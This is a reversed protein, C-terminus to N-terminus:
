TIIVYLVLNIWSKTRIALERLFVAHNFSSILLM